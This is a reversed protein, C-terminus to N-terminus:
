SWPMADKIQNYFKEIENDSPLPALSYCERHNADGCRVFNVPMLGIIKRKEDYTLERFPKVDPLDQRQTPPMQRENTM